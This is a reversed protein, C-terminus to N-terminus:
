SQTTVLILCQVGNCAQSLNLYTNIPTVQTGAIAPTTITCTIAGVGQNAPVSVTIYDTTSSKVKLTTVSAPFTGSQIILTANAITTLEDYLEFTELLDGALGTGIDFGYFRHAKNVSIETWNALNFSAGATFGTTVKYIRNSDVIIDNTAYVKLPVFAQFNQADKIATKFETNLNEQNTSVTGIATTSATSPSVPVESATQNEGAGQYIYENQTANFSIKAGTDAKVIGYGIATLDYWGTATIKYYNGDILSLPMSASTIVVATAKTAGGAILTGVSKLRDLDEITKIRSDLNNVALQGTVATTPMNATPVNVIDTMTADTASTVLGKADYTIKTKTAGTIATNATLTNTLATKDAGSMLGATTTTASPLNFGTGNSNTVPQTTSTATGLALNSPVSAGGGSGGGIDDFYTAIVGATLAGAPVSDLDVGQKLSYLTNSSDWYIVNPNVDDAWRTAEFMDALPLRVMTNTVSDYGETKIITKVATYSTVETNRMYIKSGLYQDTNAM